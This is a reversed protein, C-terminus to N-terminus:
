IRKKQKHKIITCFVVAGIAVAGIVSMYIKDTAKENFLKTALEYQYNASYNSIDALYQNLKSSNPMILLGREITEKAYSYNKQEILIQTLNIYSEEKSPNLNIAKKYLYWRTNLLLLAM